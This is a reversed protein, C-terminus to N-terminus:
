SKAYQNQVFWVSNPFLKQPNLSRKSIIIVYKLACRSAKWASSQGDEKYLFRNIFTFKQLGKAVLGIGSPVGHDRDGPRGEPRRVAEFSQVCTSGM